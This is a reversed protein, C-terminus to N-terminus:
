PTGSIEFGPSEEIIPAKSSCAIDSKRKRSIPVDVVDGDGDFVGRIVGSVNGVPQVALPGFDASFRGPRPSTDGDIEVEDAGNRPNVTDGWGM